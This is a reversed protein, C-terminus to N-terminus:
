IKLKNKDIWDSEFLRLYVSSSEFLNWDMMLCTRELNVRWFILDDIKCARICDPLRVTLRRYVTLEVLLLIFLQSEVARWAETSEGSNHPKHENRSNNHKKDALFFDLPSFCFVVLDRYKYM